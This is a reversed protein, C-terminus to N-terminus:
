NALIALQENGRRHGINLAKVLHIDSEAHCSCSSHFRNTNTAIFIRVDNCQHKVLNVVAISPTITTFCVVVSSLHVTIVNDDTYM